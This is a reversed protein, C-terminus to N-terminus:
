NCLDFHGERIEFFTM